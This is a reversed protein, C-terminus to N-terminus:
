DFDSKWVILNSIGYKKLSNISERFLFLLKNISTGGWLTLALPAEKVWPDIWKCFLSPSTSPSFPPPTVVFNKPCASQSESLHVLQLERGGELWGLRRKKERVVPLGPLTADFLPGSRGGSFFNERRVVKTGTRPWKLAAGGEYGENTAWLQVSQRLFAVTSFLAIYVTCYLVTRSLSLFLSLRCTSAQKQQWKIHSQHSHVYGSGGCSWKCVFRRRWGRTSPYLLLATCDYDPAPKQIPSTCKSFKFPQM